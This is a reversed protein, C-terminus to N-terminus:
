LKEHKVESELDKEWRKTEAGNKDQQWYNYWPKLANGIHTLPNGWSINDYIGWMLCIM